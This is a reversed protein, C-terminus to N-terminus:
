KAVEILVLAGLLLLELLMAWLMLARYNKDLWESM